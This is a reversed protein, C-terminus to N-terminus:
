NCSFPAPTHTISQNPERGATVASAAHKKRARICGSRKSRRFSSPSSSKSPATSLLTSPATRLLFIKSFGPKKALPLVSPVFGAFLKAPLEYGRRRSRSRPSRTEDRASLTRCADTSNRPAATRWSFLQLATRGAGSRAARSTSARYTSTRRRPLTRRHDAATRGMCTRCRGCFCAALVPKLLLGDFPAIAGGLCYRGRM